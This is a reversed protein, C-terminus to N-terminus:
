QFAKAYSAHWWMHVGSCMGVVNSLHLFLMCQKIWFAELHAASQMDLVIISKIKWKRYLVFIKPSFWTYKNKM